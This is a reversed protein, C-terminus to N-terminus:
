QAFVFEFHFKNIFLCIGNSQITMYLHKRARCLALLSKVAAKLSSLSLMM